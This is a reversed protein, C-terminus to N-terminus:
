TANVVADRRRLALAENAILAGVVLAGGVLVHPGPVEDAGLWTWTVGFVIELLSLLAAEPASLARAAAVAILCPV